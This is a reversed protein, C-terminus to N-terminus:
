LKWLDWLLWTLSGFAFVAFPVLYWQGAAVAALSLTVGLVVSLGAMFMSALYLFLM